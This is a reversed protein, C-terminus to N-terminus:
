LSYISPTFRPFKNSFGAVFIAAVLVWAIAIWSHRPDTAFNQLPILFLYGFLLSPPLKVNGETDIDKRQKHRLKIKSSISKQIQYQGPGFKCHGWWAFLNYQVTVIWYYYCVPKKAWEGWGWSQLPELSTGRIKLTFYLPSVPWFEINRPM